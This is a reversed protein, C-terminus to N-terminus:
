AQPAMGPRGRRKETYPQKEPVIDARRQRVTDALNKLQNSMQQQPTVMTEPDPLTVEHIDLVILALEQQEALRVARLFEIFVQPTQQDATGDMLTIVHGIAEIDKMLVAARSPWTAVMRWEIEPEEADASAEPEETL